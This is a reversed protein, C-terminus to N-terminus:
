SHVQFVFCRTHITVALVMRQLGKNHLFALIAIIKNKEAKTAPMETFSCKSTFTTGSVTLRVERKKWVMCYKKKGLASSLVSMVSGSWEWM